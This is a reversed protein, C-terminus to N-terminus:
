LRNWKKVTLDSSGLQIIDSQRRSGRRIALRESGVPDWSVEYRDEMMRYEVGYRLCAELNRQNEEM